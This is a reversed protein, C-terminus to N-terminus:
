SAGKNAVADDLHDKVGEILWERREQWTQMIENGNPGTKSTMPSSDNFHFGNSSGNIQVVPGNTHGNRGAEDSYAM